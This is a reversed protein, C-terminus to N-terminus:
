ILVCLSDSLNQADCIALPTDNDYRPPIIM